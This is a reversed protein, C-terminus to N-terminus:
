SFACLISSLFFIRVSETPDSSPTWSPMESPAVSPTSSPKGTPWISVSPHDSPQPSFVFVIFRNNPMLHHVSRGNVAFCAREGASFARRVNVPGRVRIAFGLAHGDALHVRQACYCFAWGTLLRPRPLLFTHCCIMPVYRPHGSPASSPELSPSPSPLVSPGLSPGDSEALSPAQSPADSAAPSPRGSAALSPVSTPGYSPEGSPAGTRYCGAGPRWAMAWLERADGDLFLLADDWSPVSCYAEYPADRCAFVRGNVEVEDGAAYDAGRDYPPPCYRLPTPAWTPTGTRRCASELSWSERWHEEADEDGDLLSDDWVPVGCYAEHPADRCAFVYGGVEIEDGARYPADQDYPPPCYRLPTPSSTTPDGTPPSTPRQLSSPDTTRGHPSSDSPLNYLYINIRAKKEM